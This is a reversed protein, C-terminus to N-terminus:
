IYRVYMDFYDVLGIAIKNGMLKNWLDATKNGLWYKVLYNRFLFNECEM